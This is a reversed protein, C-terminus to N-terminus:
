PDSDLLRPRLVHEYIYNAMEEGRAPHDIVDLWCQLIDTVLAGDRHLSGRFVSEPFTPVRVIVDVPEGPEAARLGLSLLRERMDEEVFVHPAVGTVFKFGLRDCAAFLGLCARAGPLLAHKELLRELDRMPNKARFVWRMRMDVPRKRQAFRWRELLESVRVLRLPPRDHLFNDNRLSAVLRSASPLSVAAARALQVASAVPEDITASTGPVSLQLERPLLHSLLVKLM